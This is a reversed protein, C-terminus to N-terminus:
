QHGYAAVFANLSVTCLAHSTAALTCTEVWSGNNSEPVYTMVGNAPYGGGSPDGDGTVGPPDEFAVVTSSLRYIQEQAPRVNPCPQQYSSLMAAAANPFLPCAQSLRCSLCASTEYGVIAEGLQQSFARGWAPATTGTPYVEVGGAGDAGIVGMCQWTKPGVLKMAGQDDSFVALQSALNSPVSTTVTSPLSAPAPPPEVGFTTPCVVLPLAALVSGNVTTSSTTTSTTSAAVTTSTTSPAITTTQIAINHRAARQGGLALMASGVGAALVIVAALIPWRRRPSRAPGLPSTLDPRVDPILRETRAMVATGIVAPDPTTGDSSRSIAEALEATSPRAAPERSLAARVIPVLRADLGTLNPEEHVIRYLVAEPRGEGFPPRGTAAFVITGGWSFVDTARSITEGRATEPAMWPPSGVSMGTQTLSTAEMARAIGFDIIRPGTAGLLINSPKLDRHIVGVAHISQLAQALGSAFGVVAEFAFAGGDSVAQALSPGDVYETVLYPTPGELEADIFRATYRGAVARGAEVERRFRARFEADEALHSRILKLAGLGTGAQVLYVIGMGGAGLRGLVRYPGIREPDGAQLDSVPV